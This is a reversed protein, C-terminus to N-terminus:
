QMTFAGERLIVVFIAVNQASYNSWANIIIPSLLVCAGRKTTFMAISSSYRTLDFSSENEHPINNIFLDARRSIVRFVEYYCLLARDSM